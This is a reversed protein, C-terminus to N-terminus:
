PDPLTFFFTSGDGPRSTVWIRGGHREVIRKCVALGIGNGEYQGRAHLRQFIIFIREFQEPAIGIGNDQVGVEWGEPCHRAQVHIAPPRDPATYKLANSILNQLLRLVQSRDCRVTPLTSRTICAGRDKIAISLNELVEDLIDGLSAQEMVYERRSLRSYDLLDAIMRQMRKAGDVAFNIYEHATGDLKDHYRRDLMQVYSAVMRLPEQLDHSIAYAFQELEANSRVLEASKRTLEQHVTKLETVDVCCGIFGQFINDDEYRPTGTDLLWRYTGDARRMRYEVSFPKNEMTSAGSNHFRCQDRDDPHVAELWGDGLEQELHRGTFALWTANFYTCQLRHDSMWILVPATDALRRFREESERLRSEARKRATIDTHTGVARLPQGTEDSSVVKGRDLIWMWEGDKTALRHESQYLPSKGDLHETLVRMVDDKDDPHIRTLWSSVQPPLEDPEYGLMTSLRPSFYVHGSPINWDWLGDDTAELAMTLREESIKLAEQTHQLRQRGQAQRLVLWAVAGCFAAFVLTGLITIQYLFWKRSFHPQLLDSEVQHVIVVLPHQALRRYAAIRILSDVASVVRAVGAAPYSQQFYPRNEPLIRGLPENQPRMKSERVRIVRDMGALTIGGRPGLEISNYVGAFYSPDLSLVIVGSFAGDSDHLRRAFQISWKQSVRGLVPKSIFLFDQGDSDRHVRFHERDSLDVPTPSPGLNSYLLKGSDSIVGIQLIIDSFAPASQLIKVQDVFSDRRQQYADRLYYLVSDVSSITRLVHEEFVQALNSLEKEAVQQTLERDRSIEFYIATWIVTIALAALVLIAAPIYWIQPGTVPPRESTDVSADSRAHGTAAPQFIPNHNDM